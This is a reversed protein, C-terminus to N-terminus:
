QRLHDASSPEAYSGFSQRLRNARARRAKESDFAPMEAIVQIPHNLRGCGDAL